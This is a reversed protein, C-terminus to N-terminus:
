SAFCCDCINTGIDVQMLYMCVNSSSQRNTAVQQSREFRGGEAEEFGHREKCEGEMKKNIKTM